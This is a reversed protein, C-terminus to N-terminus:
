IMSQPHTQTVAVIVAHLIPWVREARDCLVAVRPLAFHFAPSVARRSRIRLGPLPSFDFLSWNFLFGIFFLTSDYKPLLFRSELWPSASKPPPFAAPSGAVRRPWLTPFNGLSSTTDPTPSCRAAAPQKSVGDPSSPFVSGVCSTTFRSAVAPEDSAGPKSLLLQSTLPAPQSSGFGTRFFLAESGWVLAMSSLGSPPLLWSGMTDWSRTNVPFLVREDLEGGRFVESGSVSPIKDLKAESWSKSQPSEILSSWASAVIVFVSQLVTEHVGLAVPLSFLLQGTSVFLWVSESWVLWLGGPPWLKGPVMGLSMMVLSGLGFRECTADFRSLISGLVPQRSGWGSSSDGQESLPQPPDGARIRDGLFSDLEEEMPRDEAEDKSSDSSSKVPLSM